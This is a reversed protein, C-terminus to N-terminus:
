KTTDTALEPTKFSLDSPEKIEKLTDLQPPPSIKEPEPAEFVNLVAPTGKTGDAHVSSAGGEKQMIRITEGVIETWSGKNDKQYAIPDKRLITLNQDVFSEMEGCKARIGTQVITVPNGRATIKREGKNNSFSFEESQIQLDDSRFTVNKSIYLYSLTNNKNIIKMTSHGSIFVEGKVGFVNGSMETSEGYSALTSLLMFSGILISIIKRM